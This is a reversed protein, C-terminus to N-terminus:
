RSWETRGRFVDGDRRICLTGKGERQDKAFVVPHCKFKEANLKRAGCYDALVKEPPHPELSFVLAEMYTAGEPIPFSPPDVPVIIYPYRRVGRAQGSDSTGVPIM